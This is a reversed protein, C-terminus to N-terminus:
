GDKVVWVGGIGQNDPRIRGLNATNIKAEAADVDDNERGATRRRVLRRKRNDSCQTNVTRTTTIGEGWSRAVGDGAEDGKALNGAKARGGLIARSIARAKRGRGLGGTSFDFSVM